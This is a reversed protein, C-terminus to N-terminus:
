AHALRAGPEAPWAAIAAELECRSREVEAPTRDRAAALASRIHSILAAQDQGKADRRYSRRLFTFTSDLRVLEGILLRCPIPRGGEPATLGAFGFPGPVAARVREVTGDAIADFISASRREIALDNLGVYFRSVPLKALESACEVAAATEILTGVGCRERALDIIRELEAPSRVMPVL